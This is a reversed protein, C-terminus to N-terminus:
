RPTRENDEHLAQRHERLHRDTPRRREPPGPRGTARFGVPAPRLRRVLFAVFEDASRQDSFQVSSVVRPELRPLFSQNLSRASPSARSEVKPKQDDFQVRNWRASDARSKLVFLSQGSGQEAALALQRDNEITRVRGRSEVM